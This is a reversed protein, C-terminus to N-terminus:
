TLIGQKLPVFSIMYQTLITGEWSLITKLIGNFADKIWNNRETLM